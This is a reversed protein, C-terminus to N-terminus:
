SNEYKERRDKELEIEMQKARFVLINAPVWQLEGNIIMLASNGDEKAYEPFCSDGKIGQPGRCGPPGQKPNLKKIKCSLIVSQVFVFLNILGSILIFASNKDIM